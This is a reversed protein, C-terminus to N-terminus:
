TINTQESTKKKKKSPVPNFESGAPLEVV